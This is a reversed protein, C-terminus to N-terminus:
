WRATTDLLWRSARESAEGECASRRAFVIAEGFALAMTHACVSVLSPSFVSSFSPCRVDPPIFSITRDNEFRALRVCQM